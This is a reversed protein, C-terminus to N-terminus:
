SFIPLSCFFFNYFFLKGLYFFILGKLLGQNKTKISLSCVELGEWEESEVIVWELTIGMKLYNYDDRTINSFSRGQWISAKLKSFEVWWEKWEKTSTGDQKVILCFSKNKGDYITGFSPKIIVKLKDDIM